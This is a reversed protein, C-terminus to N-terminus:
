ARGMPKKSKTWLIHVHAAHLADVDDRADRGTIPNSKFRPDKMVILLTDEPMRDQAEGVQAMGSEAGKEWFKVYQVDESKLTTGNHLTVEPMHEDIMCPWPNIGRVLSRRRCSGLALRAPRFRSMGKRFEGAPAEEVLGAAEIGLVRPLKVGPSHSRSV